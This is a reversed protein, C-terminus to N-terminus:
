YGRKVHKKDQLNGLTIIV